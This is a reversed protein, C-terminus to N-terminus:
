PKDIGFDYLQGGIGGPIAGTALTAFIGYEGPKLPKQPKFEWIEPQVEKTTVPIVWDQDPTTIGSVSGFGSNGMKLSRNGKRKNVEVRVMFIKGRPSGSSRVLVSPQTDSTRAPAALEPFDSYFLVAFVAYTTAFGGVMSELSLDKDRTHLM